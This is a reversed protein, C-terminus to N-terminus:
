QQAKQEEEYETLMDNRAKWEIHRVIKEDTVKDKLQNLIKDQYSKEERKLSYKNQNDIFRMLDMADYDDLTCLFRSFLLDGKKFIFGKEHTYKLHIRGDSDSLGVDPSFDFQELKRLEGAIQNLFGLVEQRNEKCKSIKVETELAVTKQLDNIEGESPLDVTFISM